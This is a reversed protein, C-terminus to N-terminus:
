FKARLEKVKGIIKIPTEAVEAGSFYMPDYAPNTSVLAIGDEYKKLRKCVADNGNVLAIVIDGDDADEQQRVIVIDGNSFKPEMSDGRIQLAFYEGDLAMDGTIEEWDLIEEQAEIPIGAAVRGLVPIRKNVRLSGPIGMGSIGSFLDIPNTKQRNGDVGNQAHYVRIINKPKPTNDPNLSDVSVNLYNAVKVLRDSPLVGKKLGAIYGNAFNCEKELRSIPINNEKCLSIIKEVSNM